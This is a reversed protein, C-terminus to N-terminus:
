GRDLDVTGAVQLAALAYMKAADVMDDLEMFGTGQIAATGRSPGFTLAPIGARNLINTDRWMSVVAPEATAPPPTGRVVEHARGIADILPEIGEAVAGAKSMVIEVEAEVGADALAEALAAVVQQPVEGPLTRIDVYLACYPASRNPRWPIGGRVAGVQAKPEVQGCPTPGTRERQFDTAWEEIVQVATAAKVIANPHGALGGGAPRELRPTYMNRGRLTVKCYIAGTNHWCLAFDTTEAVLAYDARVGHDVLFRTGLGKGEYGSGQYEDVPASGTEGAVSTLILDGRLPAGADRIARAAIMFLAHGHRDNLVTHGFFRDGERWGGRENPDPVQMLNDFDPGSVETDLHANFLLSPGGVAGPVRAVVNARDEVIPQLRADIDHDRYWAHVREAAARERGFPAYVNGLDLCLGGLEERAADIRDLVDQTVPDM